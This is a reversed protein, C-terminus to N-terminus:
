RRRRAIFGAADRLLRAREGYPELVARAREVLGSLQHKAWDTGHLAVLTAKGAAADPTELPAPIHDRM